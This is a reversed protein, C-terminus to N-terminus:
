RQWALLEGRALLCRYSRYFGIINTIRQNQDAISTSLPCMNGVVLDGRVARNPQSRPRQTPNPREGGIALAQPVKTGGFEGETTVRYGDPKPSAGSERAVQLVSRALLEVEELDLRSSLSVHSGIPQANWGEGCILQVTYM